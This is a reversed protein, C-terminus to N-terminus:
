KVVKKEKLKVSDWEGTLELLMKHAAKEGPTLKM